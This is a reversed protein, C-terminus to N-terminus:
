GCTRIPIVSHWSRGAVPTDAKVNGFTAIREAPIVYDKGNKDTVAAVFELLASKAPGENWSPLPDRAAATATAFVLPLAASLAHTHIRSTTM